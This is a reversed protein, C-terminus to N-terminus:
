ALQITTDLSLWDTFSISNQSPVSGRYISNGVHVRYLSNPTLDTTPWLSLSFSGTNSITSYVTANELYVGGSVVAPFELFAWVILISPDITGYLICPSVSPLLDPVRDPIWFPLGNTPEVYLDYLTGPTLGSLVYEGLISTIDSSVPTGIPAAATGDQLTLISAQSSATYATILAGQYPVTGSLDYLIDSISAM